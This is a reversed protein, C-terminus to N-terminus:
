TGDKSALFWHVYGCKGCVVCDATPNTWELNFFTAVATHLQGQRRFFSECGCVVCALRSGDRITVPRPEEKSFLGM